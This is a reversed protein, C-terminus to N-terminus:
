NLIRMRVMFIILAGGAVERALEIHAIQDEGVPVYDAGYILIDAAQLLPLWFVLHILKEIKLSSLTEKYTSSKGVLKLTCM